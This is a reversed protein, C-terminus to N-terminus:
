QGHAFWEKLWCRDMIVELGADQARKAGANDIVGEQLWVAKAGISIAEDIVEGAYESRRFVDVLDVTFPIQGLEAYAKEGFVETVNPNVPVVRYGKEQMFAAVANSARTHDPSIGVVAITKCDRFISKLEEVTNM